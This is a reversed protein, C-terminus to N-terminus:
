AQSLSNWSLSTQWGGRRGRTISKGRMSTVGETQARGRGNMAARPSEKQMKCRGPPTM